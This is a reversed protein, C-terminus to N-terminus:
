GIKMPNKLFMTEAILATTPKVVRFRKIYKKTKRKLYKAKSFETKAAFTASSEVLAAIIEEGSKEGKMENIDEATLAQATNDDKLDRNDVTTEIDGSCVSPTLGPHLPRATVPTRRVQLRSCASRHM